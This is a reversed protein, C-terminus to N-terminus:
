FRLVNIIIKDIVRIFINNYNYQTKKLWLLIIKNLLNRPDKFSQPEKYNYNRAIKVWDVDWIDERRFFSTNYKDLYKLVVRDWYYNNDKTVKKLDIGIKSYYGFWKNPILKVKDPKVSYM